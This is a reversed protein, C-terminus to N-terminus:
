EQEYLFPKTMWDEVYLSNDFDAEAPKQSCQLILYPNELGEGPLYIIEVDENISNEGQQTLTSSKDDESQYDPVNEFSGQTTEIQRFSIDSYDEIYAYQGFCCITFSLLLIAISLIKTKM